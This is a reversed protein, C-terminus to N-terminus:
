SSIMTSMIRYKMMLKSTGDKFRKCWKLTKSCSLTKNKYQAQLRGYIKAHKLSDSVAFKILVLQKMYVNKNNGAMKFLPKELLEPVM